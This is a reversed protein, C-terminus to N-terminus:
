LLAFATHKPNNYIEDGEMASLPTYNQDLKLLRKINKM